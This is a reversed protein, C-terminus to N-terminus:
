TRIGNYRPFLLMQPQSSFHRQRRAPATTKTHESSFHHMRFVSILMETM